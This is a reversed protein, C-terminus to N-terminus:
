CLFLKCWSLVSLVAQPRKGPSWMGQDGGVVVRAAANGIWKDFVQHHIATNVVFVDILAVFPVDVAGRTRM